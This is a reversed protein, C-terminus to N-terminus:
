EIYEGGEYLEFRTGVNCLNKDVWLWNEKNDLVYILEKPEPDILELIYIDGVKCLPDDTNTCIFLDGIKYM